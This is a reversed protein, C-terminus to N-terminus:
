RGNDLPLTHPPGGFTDRTHPWTYALSRAYCSTAYGAEARASALPKDEPEDSSGQVGFLIYQTTM